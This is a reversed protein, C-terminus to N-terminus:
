VAGVVRLGLYLGVFNLAALIWVIKDRRSLLLQTTLLAGAPAIFIYTYVLTQIFEAVLLGFGAWFSDGMALEILDGAAFVLALAVGLQLYLRVEAQAKSQWVALLAILPRTALAWFNGPDVTHYYLRLRHVWRNLSSLLPINAMGPWRAALLSSVIFLVLIIAPEYLDTSGSIAGMTFGILLLVIASGITRAKSARQHAWAPPSNIKLEDRPPLFGLGQPPLGAEQRRQEEANCADVMRSLHCVDWIWWILGGGASLLMALGTFPKNLYFRHAGLIGAILALVTVVGRRRTRYRYLDAVVSELFDPDIATASETQTM